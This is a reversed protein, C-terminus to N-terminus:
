AAGRHRYLSATITAAARAVDIPWGLRALQGAPDSVVAFYDLVTVSGFSELEAVDSAVGESYNDLFALHEPGHPGSLLGAYSRRIEAPDRRLYVTRLSTGAPIMHYNGRVVKVAKGAFGPWAAPDHIPANEYYGHPNPIYGPTNRNREDDGQTSYVCPIGGAELARMMMSTGSRPYGSVIYVPETM